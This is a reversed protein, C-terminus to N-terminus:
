SLLKHGLQTKLTGPHIIHGLSDHLSRVPRNTDPPSASTGHLSATSMDWETHYKTRWDATSLAQCIKGVSCSKGFSLQMCALNYTFRTQTWQWHKSIFTCRDTTQGPRPFLQSNVTTVRQICVQRPPTSGLTASPARLLRATCRTPGTRGCWSIGTPTSSQTPATM